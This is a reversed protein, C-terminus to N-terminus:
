IACQIVVSQRPEVCVSEKSRVLGYIGDSKELHRRSLGITQLAVSVPKDLEKPLEDGFRSMM